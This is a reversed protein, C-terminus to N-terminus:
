VCVWRSLRPPDQFTGGSHQMEVNLFGASKGMLFVSQVPNLGTRLALLAHHKSIRHTRRRVPIMVVRADIRPDLHHPTEVELRTGTEDVAEDPATPPEHRLGQVVASHAHDAIRSLTIFFVM